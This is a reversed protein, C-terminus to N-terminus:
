GARSVTLLPVPDDFGKLMRKGAPEFRLGSTSAAAAVAAAVLLESPVAIQALRAALNVLPGYYDGGRVLLEGYAIGGRPTVSADGTFREVLELAVDCAAAPDRTVFMVEDGVLKVVRGDHVAAIDYAADEFREVVAALEATSVRHALTTFGVLDVFGVAMVATDASRRPRAERFRRIATAVQSTFLDQLLMRVIGLSEIGQLSQKGLELESRGATRSPEEVAVQFMSVAAEAIRALSSGVVRTFRLAREEGFLLPGGVSAAFVRVDSENFVPDDPSKPPLGGALALKMIYDVDVGARAAVDRASLHPGPRLFLDGALSPLVDNRQAEVMQELSAGRGALWELLELREAANPSTPDYLGAAQFERATM